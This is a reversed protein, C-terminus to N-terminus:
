SKNTQNRKEQLATVRFLQIRSIFRLHAHVFIRVRISIFLLYRWSMKRESNTASSDKDLAFRISLQKKKTVLRELEVFTFVCSM